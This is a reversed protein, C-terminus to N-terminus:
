PSVPKVPLKGAVQRRTASFLLDQSLRIATKIAAAALGVNALVVVIGALAPHLGLSIAWLALLALLGLWAAVICVAAVGGLAVIWLLADSARRTELAALDLVASIAARASALANALEDLVGPVPPTPPSSGSAHAFADPPEGSGAPAVAYHRVACLIIGAWFSRM